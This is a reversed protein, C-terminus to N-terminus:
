RTGRRIADAHVAEIMRVELFHHRIFGLSQEGPNGEIPDGSERSEALLDLGAPVLGDPNMFRSLTIQGIDCVTATNSPDFGQVLGNTTVFVQVIEQPVTIPPDLSFGNRDVIQGQRDIRFAGNRTYAIRGDPMRIRFFGAGEIALDTDRGTDVLEGQQRFSLAVPAEVAPAPRTSASAEPAPGRVAFLGLGFGSVLGVVLGTALGLVAAALKTNQGTM